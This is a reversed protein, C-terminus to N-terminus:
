ERRSAFRLRAVFDELGDRTLQTKGIIQDKHAKPLMAQDCLTSLLMTLQDPHKAAPRTLGELYAQVAIQYSSRGRPTGLLFFYGGQRQVEGRLWALLHTKGSGPQGEVVVGLPNVVTNDRAEEFAGLLVHTVAGNLEAIHGEPASWVEEKNPAWGFRIKSLARREDENM